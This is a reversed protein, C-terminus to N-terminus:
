KRKRRSVGLISSAFYDTLISAVSELPKDPDRVRPIANLIFKEIVGGKQNVGRFPRNERGPIWAPPPPKPLPAGSGADAIYRLTFAGDGATPEAIVVVEAQESLVEVDKEDCCARFGNQQFDSNHKIEVFSHCTTECAFNVKDLIFRVRSNGDSRIRWVCRKRGKHTLYQWVSATARLEGGCLADESPGVDACNPGGLGPPCKCRECNNPDAYGGNKCAASTGQCTHHCYLRNIQKVDIFSPGNRQGISHQYKKDKTVITIHDWDTTFANPGYHMVSGLDYPMGMGDSELDSRKAFNGETGGMIFHEDLRIFQDRDPRSQEHWFGLSHGVEHSVIGKDECGYGISVKQTGGVRGVSSYCGSGRIFEIRDKAFGDSQRFRLCTEAEWLNLGTQITQRWKRDSERFSYPIPQGKPWRYASGTIVKRKRRKREGSKREAEALVIAKMQRSTLLIDSEFLQDMLPRNQGAETGDRLVPMPRLSKNSDRSMTKLFARMLKNADLIDKVEETKQPSDGFLAVASPSPPPAAPSPLLPPAGTPLSHLWPFLANLPPPTAPPTLPQPPTAPRQVGPMNAYEYLEDLMQFFGRGFNDTLRIIPSNSQFSRSHQRSIPPSHHRSSPPSHQRRREAAKRGVDEFLTFLDAPPKQRRRRRRNSNEQLASGLGFSQGLNLYQGLAGGASSDNPGQSNTFAGLIKQATNAVQQVREERGNEGGSKGQPQGMTQFLEVFQGIGGFSNTDGGPMPQEAQTQQPILSPRQQQQQQQGKQGLFPQFFSLFGQQSLTPSFQVLFLSIAFLPSSILHKNAHFFLPFNCWRYM